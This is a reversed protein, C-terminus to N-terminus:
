IWWWSRPSKRWSASAKTGPPATGPSARSRPTSPSSPPPQLPPPRPWRSCPALFCLIFEKMFKIHTHKNYLPHTRTHAHTRTELPSNLQAIASPFISRTGFFSIFSHQKKKGITKTSSSPIQSPSTNKQKTKQQKGSRYRVITHRLLLLLSTSSQRPTLKVKRKSFSQATVAHHFPTFRSRPDATLTSVLPVTYTGFSFHIM